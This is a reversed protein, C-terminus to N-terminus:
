IQLKTVTFDDIAPTPLRKERKDVLRYQETATVLLMGKSSPVVKTKSVKPHKNKKIVLSNEGNM